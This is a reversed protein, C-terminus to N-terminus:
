GDTRKSASALQEYLSTNVRSVAEVLTYHPEDYRGVLGTRVRERGLRDVERQDVYSFWHVGVVMPLAFSSSVFEEYHEAREDLIRSRAASNIQAFGESEGAGFEAILIPWGAVRHIERLVDGPVAEQGVAVSVAEVYEGMGELM